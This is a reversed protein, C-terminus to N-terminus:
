DALLEGMFASGEFRIRFATGPLNRDALYPAYTGSADQASFGVASLGPDSSFGYSRGLQQNPDFPRAKALADAGILIPQGRLRAVLDHSRQVYEYDAAAESGPPTRDGLYRGDAASYEAARGRGARYDTRVHLVRAGDASAYFQELFREDADIQFLTRPAEVGDLSISRVMVRSPSMDLVLLRHTNRVLALPRIAYELASVFSRYDGPRDRDYGVIESGGWPAVMFRGDDSIPAAPHAAGDEEDDLLLLTGSDMRAHFLKWKWYVTDPARAQFFISDGQESPVVEGVHRMDPVRVIRTIAGTTTDLRVLELAVVTTSDDLARVERVVVVSSGDASVAPRAWALTGSSVLVTREPAGAPPLLYAIVDYLGMPACALAVIMRGNASVSPAPPACSFDETDGIPHRDQLDAIWWRNGNSLPTAVLARAMPEVTISLATADSPVGRSDVARYRVEALGSFGQPPQFRIQGTPLVM